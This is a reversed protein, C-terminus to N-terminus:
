EDSEQETLQAILQSLETALFEPAEIHPAHGIGDLLTLRGKKTAAVAAQSSGPLIIQDAKGHIFHTPVSLNHLTNAIHDVSRSLMGVRVHPPVVMNTAIMFTFTSADMATATIQKGAAITAAVNTAFNESLMGHANEMFVAGVYNPQVGLQHAAGLYIIGALNGDGYKTVYDGLLVGGISWAVVIPRTLKCAEMVAKLDDAFLAGNTYSELNKPKGSNGHGRIDFTILNFQTALQGSFQKWWSLHSQSFAHIFLIPFGDSKGWEQVEILIGGGGQVTRTLRPEPNKLM